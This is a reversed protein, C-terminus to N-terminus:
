VATNTAPMTKATRPASVTMGIRLTRHAASRVAGHACTRLPLDGSRHAQEVLATQLVGRGDPPGPLLQDVRIGDAVADTAPPPGFAPLVPGDGRGRVDDGQRDSREVIRVHAPHPHQIALAALLDVEELDAREVAAD